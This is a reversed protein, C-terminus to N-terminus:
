RCPARFAILSPAFGKSALYDNFADEDIHRDEGTTNKEWALLSAWTRFELGRALAEVRHSAPVGPLFDTLMTKIHDIREPTITHRVRIRDTNVAPGNDTPAQLNCVSM